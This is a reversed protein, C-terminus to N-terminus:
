RSRFGVAPEHGAAEDTLYRGYRVDGVQHRRLFAVTCLCQLRVVAGIPFAGPACTSEYPELLDGAGISAWQQPDFGLGLLLDGFAGVAAFHNHNAGVISVEYVAPAATLQEFALANNAIPVDVDETGGMLMVPIELAALSAPAFGANPGSRETRQLDGDIVASIAVIAVVRRDPPAGAWGAAAGLATMGGFSHGVVSVHDEDLRGAFPDTPDRQKAVMTDVLFSVDPVLHGAAVDFPDGPSSQSNGVHEPSAVVFGHSALHEV